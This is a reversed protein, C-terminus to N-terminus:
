DQCTCNYRNKIWNFSFSIIDLKFSFTVNDILICHFGSDLTGYNSNADKNLALCVDIKVFQDQSISFSHSELNSYTNNENRWNNNAWKLELKKTTYDFVEESYENLEYDFSNEGGTPFTIKKM